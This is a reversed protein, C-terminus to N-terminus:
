GDDDEDEQWEQTEGVERRKMRKYCRNEIVHM